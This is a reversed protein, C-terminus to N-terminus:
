IRRLFHGNPIELADPLTGAPNALWQDSIV